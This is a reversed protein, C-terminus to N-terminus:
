RLVSSVSRGDFIILVLVWWGGGGGVPFDPLRINWLIKEILLGFLRKEDAIEEGLCNMAIERLSWKPLTYKYGFSNTPHASGLTRTVTAFTTKAPPSGSLTVHYGYGQPPHRSHWKPPVPEEITEGKPVHDFIVTSDIDQEQPLHPFHGSIKVWDNIDLDFDKKSPPPPPPPDSTEPIQVDIDTPPPDSIKVNGDVNVAVDFKSPFYKSLDGFDGFDPFDVDDIDNKLGEYGKKVDALFDDAM